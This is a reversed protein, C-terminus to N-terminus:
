AVEFYDISVDCFENTGVGALRSFKPDQFWVKWVDGFPNKLYYYTFNDCASELDLRQQRATKVDTTYIRGSLTGLHGYNMGVDIKRGRGILKKVAVERETNFSESTVQRLLINKTSDTPHVLWYYANDLTLSQAAKPEEVLTIPM